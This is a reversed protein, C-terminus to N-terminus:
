NLGTFSKLDKNACDRLYIIFWNNTIWSLEPIDPINSYKKHGNLKQSTNIRYDLLGKYKIKTWEQETPFHIM